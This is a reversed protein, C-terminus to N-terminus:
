LANRALFAVLAAPIPNDANDEATLVDVHAFGEAVVVEYGGPVDGFTPFAPNPNAADVVRATGDCSPATCIGISSGFPTYVGPVPAAGNTGCVAIVPIDINAAQTLNEIDRRGRGISLASSDLNVSQSCQAATTCSAGVNGVSCIGGTCVGTVSTVSQGASPYYLDTFGTGGEYFTAVVRDLRTVEKEQGWRSGPLSTPPPGNNPLVSPPMPGETIDLWTRLGNVVPGTAGVSTAVFTALAAVTGDDDLFGGLGAHATPRSCKPPVQGACAVAENNITCPTVGDICVSPILRLAALDPVKDVANNGPAGQDVTVLNEGGDPDLAAQIASVEGAAMIRPNLLGPVTAYAPTPLTCKPPVQGACDTNETAIACPTTGDVCRPANDRVAGYLGGDFKAEIRDLTDATLPAGGTSGASGELLVLGRLKAYGPQAPGGGTLDFDTAAYRATFGTGASHGGLFVNQNRAVARAAEVVADIDRSFVLNTWNAIFPVDGQTDYFVARRNPGAALVPHLVLGLEGGYFWDLMIQPSLFEEAIDTGVMDELQNTRRDFGWVEVLQGGAQARVIVNEALVRFDSAGGEFGPVLILVADPQLEPGALRWRTYRANNLSFSGGGFQALLKPNTVVVGSTGPTEAPEAASPLNITEQVVHTRCSNTADGSCVDTFPSAPCANRVIGAQPADVCRAVRRIRGRPAGSPSVECCVVRNQAPAYGCTSRRAFRQVTARCQPRLSFAGLVPTGDTADLIVGRACRRYNPFRKGPSGDFSACPCAREIAGRIAAMDQADSLAFEGTQCPIPVAAAPIVPMSVVLLAAAIAATAKPDWTRM